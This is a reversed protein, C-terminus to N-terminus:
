YKWRTGSISLQLLLIDPYAGVLPLPVALLWVHCHLFTAKRLVTKATKLFFICKVQKNFWLFMCLATQHSVPTNFLYIRNTSHFITGPESPAIWPSWALVTEKFNLHLGLQIFFISYIFCLDHLPFLSPPPPNPVKGVAMPCSNHSHPPSIYM